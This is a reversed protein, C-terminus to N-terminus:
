PFVAGGGGGLLNQDFFEGQDDPFELVEGSDFVAEEVGRECAATGFCRLGVGIVDGGVGSEVVWAVGGGGDEGEV